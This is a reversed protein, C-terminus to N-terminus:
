SKFAGKNITKKLDVLWPPTISKSLLVNERKAMKTLFILKEKSHEGSLSLMKLKNSFDPADVKRGYKKTVEIAVKQWSHQLEDPSTVHPVSVAHFAKALSMATKANSEQADGWLKGRCLREETSEAAMLNEIEKQLVEPCHKTSDKQKLENRAIKMDEFISETPKRNKLVRWGKVGKAGPNTLEVINQVHEKEDLYYM